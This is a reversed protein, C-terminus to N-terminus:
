MYGLLKMQREIAELEEASAGNAPSPPAAISEATATVSAHDLAARLGDARGNLTAPDLPREELPDSALDYVLEDRERLVLKTRGDSVSTLRATLRSVGEPGIDWKQVAELLGPHDRGAVPDHQSVAVGDPLEDMAWPQDALGAAEAILRPLQALSFVGHMEQAGPGAMILPIHTLREDLSFGHALLGGEGFNEGHDSTVIVLTEDLIGRADLAELIGGVWHDLYAGAGKYLHRMRELAESPVEHRGAAYLCIAEFTLHDKADLAARIRDLPNLDNWPRPPLYPSHCESLNVFWFSPTGSWGAIAQQLARGVAMAGDDDRSRLGERAWALKARAGGALVSHMRDHRGSTVYELRDFGLDFGSHPSVWLNTSWGHTAFGHRQLVGPLLRASVKELAPRASDPTQDPAQALGLHRPLMGTFMSAHSPLTWCATSYAETVATGRRALDAIAPTAGRAAGYPELLDRRATDLVVLLVNPAM